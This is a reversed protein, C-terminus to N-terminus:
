EDVYAWAITFMISCELNNYPRSPDSLSVNPYVFGNSTATYELVEVRNYIQNSSGVTLHKKM